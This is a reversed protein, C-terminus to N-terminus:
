ANVGYRKLHTSYSADYAPVKKGDAVMPSMSSLLNPPQV